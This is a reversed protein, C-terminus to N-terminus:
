CIRRWKLKGYCVHLTKNLKYKERSKNCEDDSEYTIIGKIPQDESRIYAVEEFIRSFLDPDSPIVNIVKSMDRKKCGTPPIYILVDDILVLQYQHLFHYIAYSSSSSVAM